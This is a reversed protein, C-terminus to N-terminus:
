PGDSYVRQYKFADDIPETKAIETKGAALISGRNQASEAARVRRNQPEAALASQRFIMMYTGNALLLAFMIMAVFAVRRIPKNMRGGQCAPNAGCGSQDPYRDPCAQ